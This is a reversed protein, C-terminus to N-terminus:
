RIQGEVDKDITVEEHGAKLHDEGIFAKRKRGVLKITAFQDITIQEDNPAANGITVQTGPEARVTLLGLKEGDSCALLMGKSEEGRLVAPKLNSVILITKGILEDINYYARIGAVIQREETGLDLKLIVLKDAKPHERAEKIKAVKLNLLAAGEKEKKNAEQEGEQGQQNGSFKEKYKKKEEDLMKPFLAQPTGIKHDGKVSLKGLDDWRAPTINLQSFIKQSSFPM